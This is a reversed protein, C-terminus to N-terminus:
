HATLHGAAAHFDLSGKTVLARCMLLVCSQSSASCILLAHAARVPSSLVAKAAQPQKRWINCGLLHASRVM